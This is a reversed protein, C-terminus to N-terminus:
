AFSLNEDDMTMLSYYLARGKDHAILKKVKDDSLFLIDKRKGEFSDSLYNNIERICDFDLISVDSYVKGYCTIVYCKNEAALASILQLGIYWDIITAYEPITVVYGETIKAYEICLKATSCRSKGVYISGIENLLNDECMDLNFHELGNVLRLIDRATMVENTKTKKIFFINEM